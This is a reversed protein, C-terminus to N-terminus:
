TEWTHASEHDKTENEASELQGRMTSLEIDPDTSGRSMKAEQEMNIKKLTETLRAQKEANDLCVARYNEARLKEIDFDQIVPSRPISLNGPPHIINASDPYATKKGKALFRKIKKFFCPGTMIIFIILAAASIYTAIPSGESDGKSNVVIFGTSHSQDADIEEVQGANIAKSAGRIGADLLVMSAGFGVGKALGGTAKTGVRGM